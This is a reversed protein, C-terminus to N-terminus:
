FPLKEQEEKTLINDNEESVAQLPDTSIYFCETTKSDIKKLIRRDEEPNAGSCLHVPNLTYGYYECWASLSSKFQNSKYKSSQSPSLTAKFNEFAEERKFLVNYYAMGDPPIAPRPDPAITFYQNAWIFFEEDRSLGKIMQRRLQRKMLNDM